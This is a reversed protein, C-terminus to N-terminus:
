RCITNIIGFLACPTHKGSQIRFPISEGGRLWLLLGIGRTGSYLRGLGGFGGLFFTMIQLKGVLRRFTSAKSLDISLNTLLTFSLGLYFVCEINVYYTDKTVITTAMWVSCYPEVARFAFLVLALM